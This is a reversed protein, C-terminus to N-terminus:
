RGHPLTPRLEPPLHRELGGILDHATATIRELSDLIDRTGARHSRIYLGSNAM